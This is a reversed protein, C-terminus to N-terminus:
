KNAKRKRGVLKNKNTRAGLTKKAPEKVEEIFPKEGQKKIMEPAEDSSSGFEYFLGEDEESSSSDVM